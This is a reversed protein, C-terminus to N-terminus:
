LSRYALFFGSDSLQRMLWGTNLRRYRSSYLESNPRGPALVDTDSLVVNLLIIYHKQRSKPPQFALIGRQGTETGVRRDNNLFGYRSGPPESNRLQHSKPFTNWDGIRNELNQPPIYAARASFNLNNAATWIKLSLLEVNDLQKPDRNECGVWSLSNNRM